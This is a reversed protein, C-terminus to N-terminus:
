LSRTALPISFRFYTKLIRWSSIKSCKPRMTIKTYCPAKGKDPPPWTAMNLINIWRAVFDQPITEFITSRPRFHLGSDWVRSVGASVTIICCTNELIACWFFVEIHFRCSQILKHVDAIRNDYLLLNKSSSWLTRRPTSPNIFSCFWTWFKVM